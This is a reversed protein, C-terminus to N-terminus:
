PLAPEPVLGTQFYRFIIMAEFAFLWKKGGKRGKVKAPSDWSVLKKEILPQITRHLTKIDLNCAQAVEIKLYTHKDTQEQM